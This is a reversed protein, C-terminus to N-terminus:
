IRISCSRAFITCRRARFKTRLATSSFKTREHARSVVARDACRVCRRKRREGQLPQRVARQDCPRRARDHRSFKELAPERRVPHRFIRRQVHLDHAPLAAGFRSARRPAQPAAQFARACRRRRQLVVGVRGGGVRRHCRWGAHVTGGCGRDRGRARGSVCEPQGPAQAAASRALGIGISIGGYAQLTLDDAPWDRADGKLGFPTVSVVTLEPFKRAIEDPAPLGQSGHFLLRSRSALESLAAAGADTAPDAVITKKRADLYLAM